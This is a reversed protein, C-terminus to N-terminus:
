VLPRDSPRRLSLESLEQDNTEGECVDRGKRSGYNWLTNHNLWSM